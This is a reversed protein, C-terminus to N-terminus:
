HEIKVLNIKMKCGFFSTIQKFIIHKKRARAMIHLKSQQSSDQVQFKNKKTVQTKKM